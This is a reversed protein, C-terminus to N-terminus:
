LIKSLVIYRKKLATDITVADIKALVINANAICAYLKKWITLVATNSSQTVFLDIDGYGSNSQVNMSNDSAIDGFVYLGANTGQGYVGQLAGYAATVAGAIGSPTTYYDDTNIKTTNSQNLFTKKCSVLLTFAVVIPIYKKLKKM